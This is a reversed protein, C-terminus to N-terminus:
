QNLPSIKNLKKAVKNIITTINQPTVSYKKSLRTIEIKTPTKSYCYFIDLDRLAQTVLRKEPIKITKGSFVYLFKLLVDVSLIQFLEPLIDFKEGVYVLLDKYLEQEASKSVPKFPLFNLVKEATEYDILDKHESMLGFIRVTIKQEKRLVIVIM